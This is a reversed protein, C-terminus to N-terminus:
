SILEVAYLGSVVVALLSGIMTAMIMAAAAYYGRYICRFLGVVPLDGTPNRSVQELRPAKRKMMHYPSLIGVNFEVSSYLTATALM